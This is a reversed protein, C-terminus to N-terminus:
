ERYTIFKKYVATYDLIWSSDTKGWIDYEKEDDAYKNVADVYQKAPIDQRRNLITFYWRHRM